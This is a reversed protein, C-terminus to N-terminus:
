AREASTALSAISSPFVKISIMSSFPSRVLAWILSIKSGVLIVSGWPYNYPPLMEMETVQPLSILAHAACDQGGKGLGLGGVAMPKPRVLAASLCGAHIPTESLVM